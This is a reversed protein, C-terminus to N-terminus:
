VDPPRAGVPPQVMAPRKAKKLCDYCLYAGGGQLVRLTPRLRPSTRRMTAPNIPLLYCIHLLTCCIDCNSGSFVAKYPGPDSNRGRNTSKTPEHAATAYQQWQQWRGPRWGAVRHGAGSGTFEPTSRSDSSGATATGEARLRVLRIFAFIAGHLGRRQM